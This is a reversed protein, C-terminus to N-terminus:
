NKAGKVNEIQFTIENTNNWNKEKKKWNDM